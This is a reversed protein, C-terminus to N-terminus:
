INVFALLSYIMIKTCQHVIGKSVMKRLHSFRVNERNIHKCSIKIRELPKKSTVAVENIIFKSRNVKM